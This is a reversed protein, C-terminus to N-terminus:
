NGACSCDSAELLFSCSSMHPYALILVKVLLAHLGEALMLLVQHRCTGFLGGTIMPHCAEAAAVTCFGSLQRVQQQWQQLTPM